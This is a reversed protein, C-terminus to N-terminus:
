KGMMEPHHKALWNNVDQFIKEALKIMTDAEHASIVGAQEYTGMNRKKRCRNFLSVTDADAKITLALSHIIRYHHQERSARCGSAALAVNATQLAANYAINFCWDTSLGQTRCDALDRKIAKFLAKIEGVNPPHELVWGNKLWLQLSM